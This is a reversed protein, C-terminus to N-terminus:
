KWSVTSLHISQSPYLKNVSSIHIEQENLFEFDEWEISFNFKKHYTLLSSKKTLSNLDYVRIEDGSMSFQVIYNKHPSYKFGGTSLTNFIKRLQLDYVVLPSCNTGCGWQHIIQLNHNWEFDGGFGPVIQNTKQLTNLNYLTLLYAKSGKEPKHRVFCYNSDPSIAYSVINEWPRFRTLNITDNQKLFFIDNYVQKHWKREISIQSVSTYGTMMFIIFFSLSYAGM